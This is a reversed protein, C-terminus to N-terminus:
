QRQGSQLAHAEAPEAAVGSSTFNVTGPGLIGTEALILQDSSGPMGFHNIQAPFSPATMDMMIVDSWTTIGKPATSDYYARSVMMRSDSFLTSHTGSYSYSGGQRPTDQVGLEAISNGAILLTHLEQGQNTLVYFHGQQFQLDGKHDISGSVELPAGTFTLTPV